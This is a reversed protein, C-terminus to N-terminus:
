EAVAPKLVGYVYHDLLILNKAAKQVQKASLNKVASNYAEDDKIPEGNFSMDELKRIWYKNEKVDTERERIFTEKAKNLDTESPGEDQINKLEDM